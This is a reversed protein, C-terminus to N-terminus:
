DRSGAANKRHSSRASAPERSKGGCKVIRRGCPVGMLLLTTFGLGQGKFKFKMPSAMSWRGTTRPLPWDNRSATLWASPLLLDTQGRPLSSAKTLAPPSITTCESALSHRSATIEEPGNVLHADSLTASRPSLTTLHSGRLIIRTYVYESMTGNRIHVFVHLKGHVILVM